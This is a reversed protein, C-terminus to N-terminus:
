QGIGVSLSGEVTNILSIGAATASVVVFGSDGASFAGTLGNATCSSLTNIALVGTFAPSLTCSFGSVASAITSGNPVTYLQATLTVTTGVLSMAQGTVFNVSMSGFTVASPLVQIEGLFNDPVGGILNATAGTATSGALPLVVGQGSLGGAITTMVAGTSGTVNSLLM